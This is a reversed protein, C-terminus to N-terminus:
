PLKPSSEAHEASLKDFERDWARIKSLVKEAELNAEKTSLDPNAKSAERIQSEVEQYRAAVNKVHALEHEIVAKLFTEWKRLSQTEVDLDPSWCPLTVTIRYGAKVRDFDPKGSSGAGPWNWSVYWHTYADRRKGYNDAPGKQDLEKRLQEPTDGRIM